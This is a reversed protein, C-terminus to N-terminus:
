LRWHKLGNCGYFYFLSRYVRSKERIQPVDSLINISLENSNAFRVKVLKEIEGISCFDTIILQECKQNFIERVFHTNVYSYIPLGGPRPSRDLCCELSTVIDAVCILFAISDAIIETKINLKSSCGQNRPLHTFVAHQPNWKLM